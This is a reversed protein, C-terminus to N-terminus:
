RDQAHVYSPELDPASALAIALFAANVLVVTGLGIAVFVPWRHM